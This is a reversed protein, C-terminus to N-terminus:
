GQLKKFKVLVTKTVVFDNLTQQFPQHVEIDKCQIFSDM